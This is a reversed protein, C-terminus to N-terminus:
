GDGALERRRMLGLSLGAGAIVALLIWWLGRLDVDAGSLVPTVAFPSINTTWGPLGFLPGFLGLITGALVLAWGVGITARPAVVFVLATLVTFVSAAALQGLGTVTVARYLTAGGGHAAVGVYGALVAAAVVIVVACTAVVVYDALWRVRDVPSALVLEATGHAEEQRARVVTQVASCAALIGLLTFFVTIVAEDLTGTRAIKELIQQVAPNEGSIQGAIGSLTTALLGSLAGGIAWGVISPSALRWVLAHPSRLAPRAHARGRSEAFFGAGIDRASQLATAAAALLLGFAM